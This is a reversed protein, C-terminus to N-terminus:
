WWREEKTPVPSSAPVPPKTTPLVIMWLSGDIGSVAVRDGAVAIDDVGGIDPWIALV